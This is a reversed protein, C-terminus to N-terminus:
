TNKSIEAKCLLNSKIKRLFPIIKRHQKLSSRFVYDIQVIIKIILTKPVVWEGKQGLIKSAILVARYENEYKIYYGHRESFTGKRWRTHGGKIRITYMSTPFRRVKSSIGNSEFYFQIYKELNWDQRHAMKKYLRDPNSIVEDLTSLIQIIDKKQAVLHRDCFGGYDEGKPIEIPIM